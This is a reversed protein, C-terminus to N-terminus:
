NDKRSIQSAGSSSIKGAQAPGKYFITSAGSAEANISKNVTLLIDSAGSAEIRCHGAVFDYGKLHSAGSADVTTNEANGKLDMDSAGTLTISLSSAKISGQLDCAGSLHISLDATTLPGNISIDSAGSAVLKNLTRVSVYAVMKPTNKFWSERNHWIKLVGNRVETKIDNTNGDPGGSVAVSDGSGQSLQLDIAGSVEVGTFPGVQRVQAQKDHFVNQSCGSLSAMLMLLIFSNKM